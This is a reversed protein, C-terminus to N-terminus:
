LFILDLDKALINKKYFHNLFEGYGCGFDIMSDFLGLIKRKNLGSEIVEFKRKAGALDILLGHKDKISWNRYFEELENM